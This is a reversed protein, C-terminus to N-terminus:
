VPASDTSVENKSLGVLAEFNPNELLNAFDPDTQAEQRYEPNGQIAKALTALADTTRSLRSYVCALNYLTAPNNPELEATAEFDALAEPYRELQLYATGRNRLLIPSKPNLVLAATYDSIALEFQEMRAYSNGRGTLAFLHNIRETKGAVGEPAFEERRDKKGYIYVRNLLPNWTHDSLELVRSYDKIANEYRGLEDYANGRNILTAAHDPRLEL